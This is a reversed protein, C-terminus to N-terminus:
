GTPLSLTISRIQARTYTGPQITGRQFLDFLRVLEKTASDQPVLRSMTWKGLPTQAQMLSISGSLSGKTVAGGQYLMADTSLTLQFYFNNEVVTIRSVFFTFTNNGSNQCTIGEVGAFYRVSDPGSASVRGFGAGLCGNLPKDGLGLFNPPCIYSTNYQWNGDLFKENIALDPQVPETMVDRCALTATALFLALMKRIM